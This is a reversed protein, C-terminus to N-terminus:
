AAARMQEQRHRANAAVARTGQGMMSVFWQHFGARIACRMLCHCPYIVGFRGEKQASSPYQPKLRLIAPIAACEGTEAKVAGSKPAM